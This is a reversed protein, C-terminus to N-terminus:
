CLSAFNRSITESIAVDSLVGVRSPRMIIM